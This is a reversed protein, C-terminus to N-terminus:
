DKSNQDLKILDAQQLYADLAAVDGSRARRTERARNLLRARVSAAVDRENM